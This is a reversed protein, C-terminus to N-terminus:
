KFVYNKTKVRSGSGDKLSINIVYVDRLTGMVVSTDVIIDLGKCYYTYLLIINRVYSNVEGENPQMQWLFQEFNVGYDVYGLLETNETGFLIDLEQIAAELVDEIILDDGFLQLDFEAM